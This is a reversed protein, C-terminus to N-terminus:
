REPHQLWEEIEHELEALWEGYERRRQAAVLDESSRWRDRAEVCIWWDDCLARFTESRHYESEIQRTWGPFYQLVYVLTQGLPAESVNEM